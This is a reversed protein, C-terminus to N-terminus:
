DADGGGAQRLMPLQLVAAQMVAREEDSRQYEPVAALLRSFASIQGEIVRPLGEAAARLVAPPPAFATNGELDGRFWRAIAERVAWGPLDKLVQVYILIKTLQVRPDAAGISYFEVVARIQEELTDDAFQDALMQELDGVRRKLSARQMETLRLTAPLTPNDRTGDLAALRSKLWAPMSKLASAPETRDVAPLTHDSLTLDTGM